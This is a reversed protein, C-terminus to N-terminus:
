HCATPYPLNPPTIDALPSRHSHRITAAALAGAFILAGACIICIERYGGRLAAANAYSSGSLGGLSPVAAVWLLAAARAVANNVGSAIGAHDASVSSLATSTLPAVMAAIGLGFVCELPIVTAWYGTHASVRVALLAAGAYLIPGATMQARPGIRESLQGSPGSLLLALITIPLLTSGAKAPSYGAITELAVTFVFSFVGFAGYVFFTVVNVSVFVRSRFMAPPLMPADSHREHWVFATAAGLATMAGVVPLASARHLGSMSILVYTGATLAVAALVSGTWDMPAPVAELSEPVHRVAVLVLVAAVPVNIVFIWRWTGLDLLWGGAFPAIVSSVGSFGSWIGIARPRDEARFSSQIIALSAPMMLAGGIGQISRAGILANIGPAIACLLSAATFGVVGILFIRRRGFHDGLAGALLILSALSLTYGTITWQLQGFDANLDHGIIPLAVNMVASDIGAIGSGLVAALLVWQGQVSAVALGDPAPIDTTLATAM